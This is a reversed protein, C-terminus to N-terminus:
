EVDEVRAMIWDAIAKALWRHGEANPHAMDGLYAGWGERGMPKIQAALDICALGREQCVERVAQAFDDLMVFRPGGGPLTTIPCIATAGATQRAVRDVYDSLAYRYYSVPQQGSKDNYGYALTVLDPADGAFDRVVWARADNLKAGGVARSEVYVEDYGLRERLMGQLLVAYMESYKDALGTGATISDGMCYVRVPQRGKMARLVEAVDRPRPAPAPAPVGTLLEVHDIAFSYAPMRENRWVLYWRTGLTIQGMGSPPLMGPSGIPYVPGEPVLEEFHYTLRHWTTDALPFYVNYTYGYNSGAGGIAVCGYNESGDGRVWFSVGNCADWAEAAATLEPDLTVIVKGGLKAELAGEGVAADEAAAYAAAAQRTTEPTATIGDRAEIAVLDEFDEVVFGTQQACAGVCVMLACLLTIRRM